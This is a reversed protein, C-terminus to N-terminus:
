KHKNSHYQINYWDELYPWELLQMSHREIQSTLLEKALWSIWQMKYFLFNKATHTLTWWKDTEHQHLAGRVPYLVQLWKFVQKNIKNTNCHKAELSLFFSHFSDKSSIILTKTNLQKYISLLWKMDWSSFQIHLNSKHTEKKRTLFFFIMYKGINKGICLRDENWKLNWMTNATAVPYITKLM